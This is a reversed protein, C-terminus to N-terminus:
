ERRGDEENEADHERSPQGVERWPVDLLILQGLYRGAIFNETGLIHSAYLWTDIGSNAVGGVAGRGNDLRFHYSETTSTGQLTRPPTMIYPTTESGTFALRADTDSDTLAQVRERTQFDWVLITGDESCSLIHLGDASFIAFYVDSVHGQLPDLVMDGTESNWVRVTQDYSASVIHRGDPAFTASLVGNTHGQLPDLVMNGTDSNWICITMDDSASVIRRGDPSFVACNVEDSHGELPALAMAGTTSNWICVTSDGSASLLRMGDPSFAVFLVRGTHAMMMVTPLVEDGTQTDRLRISGDHLGVAIRRGDPSVTMCYVKGASRGRKETVEVRAPAGTNNELESVVNEPNTSLSDGDASEEEVKVGVVRTLHSSWHSIAYPLQASMGLEPQPFMELVWLRHLQRICQIALEGDSNILDVRFDEAGASTVFDTFSRHVRPFTRRDIEGAGAVLVTRLRRVFHEIDAPAGNRPNRLDLSGKLEEVCLPSQQVLIAGMIRQFRQYRWPGSEGQYTRTLITLYLTNIDHMGNANLEDLVAGLCETGSEEIQARIYAIATVAWIFLGSAQMCLQQMREKGWQSWNLHHERMIQAVKGELFKTVEVISTKASIHMHRVWPNTEPAFNDRIVTEVRSSIFVKANRPLNALVQSFVQVTDSLRKIDTEDLADIVIVVPLTPCSASAVSITNVFLKIAQDKSIDENMLYPQANLVQQIAHEVAPSSASMQKAISPFFLQPDVTRADNRNIFFQAWLVGRHKCEKAISATIASKGVGPDGSMWFFCPLAGSIDGIWEM